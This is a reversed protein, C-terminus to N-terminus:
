LLLLGEELLYGTIQKLSVFAERKSAYLCMIMVTGRAVM